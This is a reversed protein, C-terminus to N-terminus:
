KRFLLFMGFAALGIASVFIIWRIVSERRKKVRLERSVSLFTTLSVSDSQPVLPDEKGSGASPENTKEFLSKRTQKLWERNQKATEHAQSVFGM